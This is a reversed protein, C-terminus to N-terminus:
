GVIELASHIQVHVASRVHIAAAEVVQFEGPSGPVSAHCRDDDLRMLIRRDLTCPQNRLADGTDANIAAQDQILCYAPQVRGGHAEGQLQTRPLDPHRRAGGAVVTQVMALCTPDADEILLALQQRHHLLDKARHSLTVANETGAM